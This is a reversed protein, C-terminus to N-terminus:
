YIAISFPARMIFAVFLTSKQLQAYFGHTSSRAFYNCIKLFKGLAFYLFISYDSITSNQHQMKMVKDVILLTNSIAIKIM